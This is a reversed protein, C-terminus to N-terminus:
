LAMGTKIEGARLALPEDWTKVDDGRHLTMRMEGVEETEEPLPLNMTRLQQLGDQFFNLLQFIGTYDDTIIDLLQCCKVLRYTTCRLIKERHWLESSIRLADQESQFNGFPQMKVAHALDQLLEGFEIVDATHVDANDKPDLYRWGCSDPVWFSVGKMQPKYILMAREFKEKQGLQHNEDVVKLHHFERKLGGLRNIM